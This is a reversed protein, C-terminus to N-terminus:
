EISPANRFFPRYLARSTWRYLLLSIWGLLLAGLIGLGLAVVPRDLGLSSRAWAVAPWALVSWRDSVLRTARAFSDPRWLLLAMLACALIAAPDAAAQVWWPLLSRAPWVEARPAPRGAAQVQAMVREVFRSGDPLRHAREPGLLSEITLQARLLAACRACGAAHERAETDMGRDLRRKFEACNM